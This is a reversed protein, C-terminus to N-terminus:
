AAKNWLEVLTESMRHRRLAAEAAPRKFRRAAIRQKHVKRTFITRGKVTFVLNPASRAKIDHAVSGADVFNATYHAFVTARKATANRRRISRKLRGTRSPVSDRMIEATTDAWLKGYPKFMQGMARLRKRLQKGGQLSSV